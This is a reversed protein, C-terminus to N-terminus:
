PQDVRPIPPPVAIARVPFGGPQTLFKTEAIHTGILARARELGGVAEFARKPLIHRLGVEDVLVLENTTEWARHFYPWKYFNDGMEDTNRVGGDNLEITRHRQFSPKKNWQRKLAGRSFAVGFFILAVLLVIWPVFAMLILSTNAPDVD